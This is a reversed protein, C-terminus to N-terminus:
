RLDFFGISHVLNPIKEAACWADCRRKWQAKGLKPEADLWDPRDRAQDGTSIGGRGNNWRATLLGQGLCLRLDAFRTGRKRWLTALKRISGVRLHIRDGSPSHTLDVIAGGQLGHCAQVLADWQARTLENRAEPQAQRHPYDSRAKM